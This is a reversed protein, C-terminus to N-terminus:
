IRIEHLVEKPYIQQPSMFTVSKRTDRAHQIEDSVGVSEDWGNITLVIIGDCIDIFGRDRTKWFEYGGPMDHRNSQEHCMAIPELLRFGKRTLLSGAYIVAEYRCQKIFSNTHSYPSALYYLKSKDLSDLNVGEIMEDEKLGSYIM